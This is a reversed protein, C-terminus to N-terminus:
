MIRVFLRILIMSLIGILMIWKTLSSAQHFDLSTECKKVTLFLFLFMWFLILVYAFIWWNSFAYLIYALTAFVAMMLGIFTTLISKANAIGSVIPLTKAQAAIDGQVDECDKLIERILCTWFSFFLYLVIIPYQQSKGFDEIEIVTLLVMPATTLWAVIINGILYMKKFYRSYFWLLVISSLVFLVVYHSHQLYDAYVGASIASVNLLVYLTLALKSSISKGIYVKEPKNIIDIAQDYYDNIVNGAAAVLVCAIAMLYFVQRTFIPQFPQILCYSFLYMALFVIVLNPWRFLSLISRIKGM